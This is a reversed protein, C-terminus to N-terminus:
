FEGAFDCLVAFLVSSNEMEGGTELNASYCYYLFNERLPIVIGRPHALVLIIFPLIIKEGLILLGVYISVSPNNGDCHLLRNSQPLYSLSFLSDIVFQVIFM